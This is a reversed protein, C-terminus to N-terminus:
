PLVLEPMEALFEEKSAPAVRTGAVVEDQIQHAKLWCAAWWDKLMIANAQFPSVTGAAGIARGIDKWTYEQAKADIFEELAIELSKQFAVQAAAEDVAKRDLGAQLEDGELQTINWTQEYTGKTTLTPALETCLQTYQDYTPQPVPFVVAYGEPNFPTAFSTNPFASRIDRESLPYYQDSLRIYM